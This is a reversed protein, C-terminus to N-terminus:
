RDATRRRGRDQSSGREGRQASIKFKQEMAETAMIALDRERSAVSAVHASPALELHQVLASSGETASMELRKFRQMLMEAAEVLKGELIYDVARALTGM